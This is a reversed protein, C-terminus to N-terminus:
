AQNSIFEQVEKPTAKRIIFSGADPDNPDMGATHEIFEGPESDGMPDGKSLVLLNAWTGDISLIKGIEELDGADPYKVVVIDGVVYNENSERLVKVVEEKIIKRLHKVTLKM